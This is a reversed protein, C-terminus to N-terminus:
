GAFSLLFFFRDFIQCHKKKINQNMPTCAKAGIIYQCGASRGDHCDPHLMHLLHVTRSLVPDWAGFISIFVCCPFLRDRNGSGIALGKTKRQGRMHVRRCLCQFFFHHHCAAPDINGGYEHFIFYAFLCFQFHGCDGIHSDSRLCDICWAEKSRDEKVGKLRPALCGPSLNLQVQGRLAQNM